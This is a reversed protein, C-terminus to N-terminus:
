VSTAGAKIFVLNVLRVELILFTPFSYKPIQAICHITYMICLVVLLICFFCIMKADRFFSM